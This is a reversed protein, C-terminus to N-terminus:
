APYKGAIYGELHHITQQQWSIVWNVIDGISLMGIVTEGELVPLHRVRRSTMLRMAEDVTQEPTVFMVPKTMIERVLTQMSNRGMLIVKRAYDRESVIGALHGGSLVVLSGVHKEAMLEIARYVSADPSISWVVNGKSRLISRVPEAFRIAPERLAATAHM